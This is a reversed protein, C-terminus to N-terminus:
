STQLHPAALQTTRRNPTSDTATRPMGQFLQFLTANGNMTNGTNRKNSSPRQVMIGFIALKDLLRTHFELSIKSREQVPHQSVHM